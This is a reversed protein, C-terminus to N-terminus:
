HLDNKAKRDSNVAWYILSGAGIIFVIGILFIFVTIIDMLEM